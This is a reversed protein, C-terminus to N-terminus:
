LPFCRDLCLHSFDCLFNGICFKWFYIKFSMLVDFCLHCISFFIALLYSLLNVAKKYLSSKCLRFFFGRFDWYFLQCFCEYFLLMCIVLMIFFHKIKSNELFAFCFLIGNEGTWNNLNVISSSSIFIISWTTFSSCLNDCDPLVEVTKSNKSEVTRNRPIWWLFVSILWFKWWLM